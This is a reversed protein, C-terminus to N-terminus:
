IEGTGDGYGCRMMKVPFSGKPVGLAEDAFAEFETWLAAVPEAYARSLAAFICGAPSLSAPDVGHREGLRRAFARLPDFRDMDGVVPGFSDLLGAFFAVVEGLSGTAVYLGPRLCLSWVTGVASYYMSEHAAM